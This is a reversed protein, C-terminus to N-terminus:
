FIDIDRAWLHPTNKIVVFYLTVCTGGVRAIQM